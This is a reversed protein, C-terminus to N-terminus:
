FLLKVESPVVSVPMRSVGLFKLSAAGISRRAAVAALLLRGGIDTKVCIRINLSNAANVVDTTDRPCSVSPQEVPRTSTPLSAEEAHM